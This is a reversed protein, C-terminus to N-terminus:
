FRYMVDVGLLHSHSRFAGGNVPPSGLGLYQPHCLAPDTYPERCPSGPTEQLVRADGESVVVQPQHRYQYALVVEVSAVFLSAGLSGGLQTGSAFDVHTYGPSAVASEYFVGGRLTLQEPMVAYDGGLQVGLTDRWHKEVAISGIDIRQALLNAVLGDTELAFRRVRSWSEYAVDLELDFREVDGDLHRYRVGARATLPLPLTLSVDDAPVGERRLEVSDEIEPSLPVVSLTSDADISAPLVSLALGLELSRAPRYWAGLVASPTFADSGSLRTRMDLESSVPNAEGPFQNADIVLEYELRPVSIWVLTLGLAFDDSFRYAASATAEIMLVEREVMQYRQGGDIPFQERPVGPPAHAGFAFMWGELGFSTAVGLLPGLGQWPAQNDVESFEVFPPVGGNLNGWDLTPARTFSLANYGFRNGLQLLTGEIRALGAPNWTAASLDDAKVSFAGARGLSRAGYTGPFYGGAHLTSSASSVLALATWFGRRASSRSAPTLRLPWQRASPSSRM